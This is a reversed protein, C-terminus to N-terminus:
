FGITFCSTFFLKKKRRDAIIKKEVNKKKHGSIKKTIKAKKV